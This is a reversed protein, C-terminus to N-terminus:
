ELAPVAESLRGDRFKATRKNLPWTWTELKVGNSVEQHIREPSGWALKAADGDMGRLLRKQRVAERVDAPYRALGEEPDEDVFLQAFVALFEERTKIGPRLVAIYPRDRPEGVVTLFIWPNPRPSYLPRRAMALSTPLEVKQIRVRTGLALLGEAPGPLIPNGSADELLEVSDPPLPTILRRSTDGFFPLVHVSARLFLARGELDRVIALRQDDPILTASACGSLALALALAAGLSSSRRM